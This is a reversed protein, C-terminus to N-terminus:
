VISELGQVVGEHGGCRLWDALAEIEESPTPYSGVGDLVAAARRLGEATGEGLGRM